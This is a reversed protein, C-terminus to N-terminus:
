SQRAAEDDGTPPHYAALVAGCAEIAAVVGDAIKGSKVTALFDAVIKSWVSDTALAHTARDAIIEVYREGLSVFLLIRRQHADGGNHAAFELRALQRARAHKIRKPVLMLRLPMWDFILTLAILIILEILVVVRAGMGPRLISLVGAILIASLAAWIPPYLSYRDSVRTVALDLDAATSSEVSLIAADIRAYEEPTFRRQVNVL